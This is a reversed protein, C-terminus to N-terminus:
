IELQQGGRTKDQSGLRLLEQYEDDSWVGAPRKPDTDEYINFFVDLPYSKFQPLVEKLANLVWRIKNGFAGGGPATLFVMGRTKGGLKMRELEIRLTAEFAGKLVATALDEKIKEDVTNWEAVGSIFSKYAYPLAALFVQGVKDVSHKAKTSQSQNTVATDWHVFVQYQAQIQQLLEHWKTKDRYRTEIIVKGQDSLFLYGNRSVFINERQFLAKIGHALDIQDDDHKTAFYNRYLLAAPCACACAPGQPTDWDQTMVGDSPAVGPGVRELANFQSAAQFLAGQYDTTSKCKEDHIFHYVDGWVTRFKM